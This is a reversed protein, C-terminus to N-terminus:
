KVEIEEYTFNDYAVTMSHFSMGLGARTPVAPQLYLVYLMGGNVTFYVDVFNPTASPKVEIVIHNTATTPNIYGSLNSQLENLVGQHYDYDRIVYVQWTSVGFYIVRDLKAANADVLGVIGYFRDTPGSVYTADVSLRYYTHEGCVECVIMNFQEGLNDKPPFPGFLLRGDEVKCQDCSYRSLSNSASFDDQLSFPGPTPTITPTDTPIPSPTLTPTETSTPIPTVTATFTPTITPTESPFFGGILPASQLSCGNSLLVALLLLVCYMKNMFDEQNPAIYVTAM